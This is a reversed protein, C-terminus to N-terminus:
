PKKCSKYCGHTIKDTWTHALTDSQGDTQCSVLAWEGSARREETAAGQEQGLKLSTFQPCSSDIPLPILDGFM